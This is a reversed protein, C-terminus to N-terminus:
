AKNHIYENLKLCDMRNDNQRTFFQNNTLDAILRIKDSIECFKTDEKLHQGIKLKGLRASFNEKMCDRVIGLIYDPISLLIDDKGSKEIVTNPFFVGRILVIQKLKNLSIKSNEEFTIINTNNKYRRLINKMLSDFLAYYNNQYVEKGMKDMSENESKFMLQAEINLERLIPIYKEKVMTNDECYHFLKSRQTDTLGNRLDSVLDNQLSTLKGSIVNKLFDGSISVLSLILTKKDPTESEDIYHYISLNNKKQPASMYINDLCLDNDELINIFVSQYKKGLSKEIGVIYVIKGYIARLKPYGDEINFYNEPYKNLYYLEQRIKRKMIKPVRPYQDNSISLGTVYQPQGYKLNITKEENIEFTYKEFIEKIEDISPFNDIDSSFTIDDSYRSIGVKYKEALFKLDLDLDFCYLNALIPSTNFGEYLIDNYTCLNSFIDAGTDSFGLKLFANKVGIKTISKFYNKIDLKFLYKKNLHEQANTLVGRKKIFGHAIDSVFVDKDQKIKQEIIHLLEKYFLNYPTNIKIVERYKKIRKPNKKPIDFLSIYTQNKENNCISNLFDISTNFSKSIIELSNLQNLNM